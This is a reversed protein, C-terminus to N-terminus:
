AGCGFLVIRNLSLGTVNIFNLGSGSTNCQIFARSSYEVGSLALNTIRTFHLAKTLNIGPQYIEIEVSGSTVSKLHTQVYELTQCPPGSPPELCSFNDHGNSSDVSIVHNYCIVFDRGIVRLFMVSLAALSISM